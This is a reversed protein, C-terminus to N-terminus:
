CRTRTAVTAKSSMSTSQRQRGNPYLAPQGGGGRLFGRLRVISRCLMNRLWHFLTGGHYTGIELVREPTERRYLELLVEFEKEWQFIPVPTPPGYGPLQEMGPFEAIAADFERPDPLMRSM